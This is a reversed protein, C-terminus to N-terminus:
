VSHLLLCHRRELYSSCTYSVLLDTLDYNALLNFLHIFKLFSWHPSYRGFFQFLNPSDCSSQVIRTDTIVKRRSREELKEGLLNSEQGSCSANGM